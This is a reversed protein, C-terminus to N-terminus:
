ADITLGDPGHLLGYDLIDGDPDIADADYRYPQGIYADVVPTSTFIPPRNPPPEIAELIYRGQTVGGRGDEVQLHLTHSGQAIADEAWTLEGTQSNLSLGLPGELLEYRLVDEDPDEAVVSSHYSNGLLVETNPGSIIVPDGNIQSWVVLETDFQVGNPNYFELTGAQSTGGPNLGGESVLDSFNYYPVGEDTVGDTGRLRVTPDSINRAGVRLPADFWYSGLNELALDAFLIGSDRNFSVTQYDLGVSSSVDVWEGDPSPEDSRSPPTPTVPNTDVGEGARIEFPRFRVSTGLDTDNNVLRVQLTAATGPEIDSLDVRLTRANFEVGPALVAGQSETLNFFTDRDSAITRVLTQGAEDIIAVELADAMSTEDSLDFDVDTLELSLVSPMEPAIFSGEWLNNFLGVDGEREALLIDDDRSDLRTIIQQTESTNGALDTVTFTLINDGVQLPVDTLIVKGEDDAVTVGGIEPREVRAGPDTLGVLTVTELTTQNDGLPATDFAPDLRISLDPATTDLTVPLPVVDSLNGREDAAQLYLTYPGDSLTNGFIAELRTQDLVFQGDASLAERVDVLRDRDFGAVFGTITSSDTIQGSVAPNSTLGDSQSIGTDDILAASIVPPTTDPLTTDERLITQVVSRTNGAGDTVQMELANEGWNLSVDNFQFQGNADAVVTSGEFTVTAGAETTGILTVVDAETINDGQPPTDSDPDLGFVLAPAETDLTFSLSFTESLNGQEDLAQLHLQRTGDSLPGFLNELAARDLSFSGDAALYAIADVPQTQGDLRVAFQTIEGDDTVTGVIAPNSTVGPLTGTDDALQGVIVPPDSDPDDSTLRVLTQTTQGRNGALDTVEIAFTNDGLELEVDTFEFYGTDDAWVERSTGSLVIRSGAETQGALTVTARETADDGLPPTDSDPSLGFMVTPKTFNLTLSLDTPDSLNGDLDQTQLVLTYDGDELPTDSLLESFRDRNIEFQGDAGLWDTVDVAAFGEINAWL